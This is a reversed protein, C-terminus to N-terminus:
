FVDPESYISTIALDSCTSLRSVNLNGQIAATKKYMFHDNISLIVKYEILCSSVSFAATVKFNDGRVTQVIDSLVIYSM